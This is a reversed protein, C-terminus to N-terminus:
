KTKCLDGDSDIQGSSVDMVSRVCYSGSGSTKITLSIPCNVNPTCLKSTDKSFSTGKGGYIYITGRVDCTTDAKFTVNSGSFSVSDNFPVCGGGGGPGPPISASAPAAAIIGLVCTMSAAASILVAQAKNSFRM